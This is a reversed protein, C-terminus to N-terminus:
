LTACIPTQYCGSQIEVLPGAARQLKASKPTRGDAPSPEGDDAPGARPMLDIRALSFPDTFGVSLSVFTMSADISSARAAILFFL